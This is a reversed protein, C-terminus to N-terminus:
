WAMNGRLYMSGSNDLVIAIARSTNEGAGAAQVPHALGPLLMMCVLAFACLRQLLHKRRTKASTQKM